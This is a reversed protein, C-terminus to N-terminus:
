KNDIYEGTDHDIKKDLIYGFQNFLSDMSGLAYQIKQSLNHDKRYNDFKKLDAIVAKSEEQQKIKLNLYANLADKLGPNNEAYKIQERKKQREWREDSSETKELEEDEEDEVTKLLKWVGDLQYMTGLDHPNTMWVSKQKGPTTVGTIKNTTAADMFEKESTSLKGKKSLKDLIDDIIVKPDEHQIDENFKRLYKM